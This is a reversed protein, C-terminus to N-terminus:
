IGPGVPTRAPPLFFHHPHKLFRGAVIGLLRRSHQFEVGRSKLAVWLALSFSVALNTLGILLLGALSEIWIRGPLSFDMAVLAYGLNASSFAIHRIDIPLGFLFGVTGMSGLMVGFLLNGM